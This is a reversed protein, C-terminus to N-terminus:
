YFLMLNARVHQERPLSFLSFSSYLTPIILFETNDPSHLGYIATLYVEYIYIYYETFISFIFLMFIM